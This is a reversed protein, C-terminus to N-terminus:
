INNIMPIVFDFLIISLFVLDISIDNDNDSGSEDTECMNSDSQFLIFTNTSYEKDLWCKYLEGEFIIFEIKENFDVGFGRYDSSVQDWKIRVFNNNPDLYGYKSTFKTLGKLSNIFLIKKNNAVTPDLTFDSPIISNLLLTSTKHSGIGIYEMHNNIKSNAQSHYYNKKM